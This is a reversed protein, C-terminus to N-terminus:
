TVRDAHRGIWDAQEDRMGPLLIVVVRTYELVEFGRTSKVIVVGTLRLGLLRDVLLRLALIQPALYRGALHNHHERRYIAESRLQHQKLHIEGLRGVPRNHRHLVKTGRFW